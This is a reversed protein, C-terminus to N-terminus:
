EFYLSYKNKFYEIGLLLINDRFKLMGGWKGEKVREINKTKDLFDRDIASTGLTPGSIWGRGSILLGYSMLSSEIFGITKIGLVVITGKPLVVILKKGKCIDKLDNLEEIILQIYKKDEESVGKQIQHYESIVKNLADKPLFKLSFIVMDISQEVKELKIDKDPRDKLIENFIEVAENPSVVKIETESQQSFAPLVFSLCSLIVLLIIKGM